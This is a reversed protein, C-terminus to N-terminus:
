NVKILTVDLNNEVRYYFKDGNVMHVVYYRFDGTLGEWSAQSQTLREGECVRILDEYDLNIM